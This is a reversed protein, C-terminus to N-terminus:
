LQLKITVIHNIYILVLFNTLRPKSIAIIQKIKM